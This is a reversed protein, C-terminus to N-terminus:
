RKLETVVQDIAGFISKGDKGLVEIKIRDGFKLYETLVPETAAQVSDSDNDQTQSVESSKNTKKAKKTDSTEANESVKNAAIKEIARKEAICGYGNKEDISSITGGGVITGPALSRTRAAHMLLQAFNIMMQDCPIKGVRQGNWHVLVERHLQHDRWDDGLENPTVAVPSFATAPKSQFFGFGKPLEQDVLHRLSWDNVLVVLQIRRACQERGSAMPVADTIVALETEFDIGHAEDIFVANDCAGLLNDSGGQYMLPNSELHDPVPVGRAGLVREIHPRYTSGDAWQFARPLPAMCNAPNFAFSHRSKGQNLTDYLDNLQPEIFAWDDLAKQLTPAIHNALHATSLDRSVVVLQGDRTGDRLTALKM